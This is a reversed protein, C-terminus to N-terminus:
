PSVDSFTCLVPYDENIGAYHVDITSAPCDGRYKMSLESIGDTCQCTEEDPCPVDFFFDLCPLGDAPCEVFEADNQIMVVGSGVGITEKDHNFDSNVTVNGLCLAFSDIDRNLEILIGLQGEHVAGGISEIFGDDPTYSTILITLDDIDVSSYFDTSNCLGLFVSLIAGCWIDDNQVM